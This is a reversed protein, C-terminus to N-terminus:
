DLWTDYFNPWGQPEIFVDHVNDRQVYTSKKIWMPVILAQELMVQQIERYIAKRKTQDLEAAGSHLLDDLHADRFDDRACSLDTIL